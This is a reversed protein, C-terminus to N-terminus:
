KKTIRMISINDPFHYYLLRVYMGSIEIKFAAVAKIAGQNGQQIFFDTENLPIEVKEFFLSFKEGISINEKVHTEHLRGGVYLYFKEDKEIITTSHIRVETASDIQKM